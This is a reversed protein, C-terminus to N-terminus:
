VFKQIAVYGLHLHSARGFKALDANIMMGDPHCGNPDDLAEKLSKFPMPVPVKVNSVLGNGQYASFSTTDLHLKFSFGDITTIKIPETENIEGM